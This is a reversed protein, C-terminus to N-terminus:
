RGFARSRLHGHAYGNDKIYVVAGKDQLNMSWSGQGEVAVYGACLYADQSPQTADTWEVEGRVVLAGLNISGDVQFTTGFPVICISNSGCQASVTSSTVIGFLDAQVTVETSSPSEGSNACAALLGAPLSEPSDKVVSYAAANIADFNAKPKPKHHPSAGLSSIFILGM